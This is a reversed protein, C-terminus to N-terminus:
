KRVVELYAINGHTDVYTQTAAVQSEDVRSLLRPLDELQRYILPWAMFSEMYGFDFLHPMFNAILLNGGPALLNFLGATLRTALRDELYDYLGLSYVLHYGNGCVRSLRGTILQSINATVLALDSREGLRERVAAISRTDADIGTLCQLRRSQFSKSLEAERLHGCAVSMIRSDTFLESTDDIKRAVRALREQVSTAAPATRASYSFIELGIDTTKPPPTRHGYMMDLLEADGAYGRPQTFAHHSFPDQHLIECIPHQPAKKAFVAWEEVSLQSKLLRLQMGLGRIAGHVDGSLMQGHISDLISQYM